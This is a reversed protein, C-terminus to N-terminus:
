NIICLLTIKTELWSICWLYNKLVLLFNPLFHWSCKLSKRQSSWANCPQKQSSSNWLSYNTLKCTLSHLSICFYFCNHALSVTFLKSRLKGDNKSSELQVSHSKNFIFFLQFTFFLSFLMVYSFFSSGLSAIFM